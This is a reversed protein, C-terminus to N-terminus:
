PSGDDGGCDTTITPVLPASMTGFDISGDANVSSSFSWISAAILAVAPVDTGPLRIKPGVLMAGVSGCGGSSVSRAPSRHNSEPLWFRGFRQFPEM